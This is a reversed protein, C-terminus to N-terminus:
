YHWSCLATNLKYVIVSLNRWKWNRGNISLYVALQQMKLYIILQRSIEIVSHKMCLTHTHFQHLISSRWNSNKSVAISHTVESGAEPQQCLCHQWLLSSPALNYAWIPEYHISTISPNPNIINTSIM